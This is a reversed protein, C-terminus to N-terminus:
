VADEDDRGAAHRVLDAARAEADGVFLEVAVEQRLQLVFNLLQDVQRLLLQHAKAAGLRRLKRDPERHAARQRIIDVLNVAVVGERRYGAAAHDGELLPASRWLLRGCRRSAYQSTAGINQHMSGHTKSAPAVTRERSYVPQVAIEGARWDPWRPPQGPDASMTPMVTRGATVTTKQSSSRM